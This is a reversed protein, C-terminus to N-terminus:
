VLSAMRSRALQNFSRFLNKRFEATSQVELSLVNTFARLATSHENLSRSGQQLKGIYESPTAGDLDLAM